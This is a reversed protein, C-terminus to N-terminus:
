AQPILQTTIKASNLCLPIGGGPHASGGCFYLQNIKSSFNPHRFFAAYKSNSSSGYLSGQYSSTKAEIKIPDLVEESEILSELDVALLRNLKQIVHDRAQKRLKDWDQGVNAPANVMVFWNEKGAPADEKNYKSSINIYITIDKALDKKDFLSSFEAEYDSSFFINHLDLQHFQQSIGWYFIIASSSREQSLTRKPAKLSPLLKTYTHFVDMNSVVVPAPYFGKATEVGQLSVGSHRIKTVAENFHFQVGEEKCLHFLSEVISRMGGKPFFTGFQMELTPIMSMIGPTKYPSSGNYTAFRNFLQVLRPDSFSSSNLENLSKQIDLSALQSVAKAAKQSLYTRAKHLSQELFLPATLAYKKKSNNIYKELQVAPTNFEKSADIIFQNTSQNVSFKSGDNWFYNCVTAQKQYTFYDSPKKRFLVFLEDILHPMTLLSPGMDWRFGDKHFSNLKGGVKEAAEFVHVNYGKKRLRLASAIGAIGSGIVIAKRM